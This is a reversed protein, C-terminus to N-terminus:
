AAIAAGAVAVTVTYLRRRQGAALHAQALTGLRASNPSRTRLWTVPRGGPAVMTYPMPVAPAGVAGIV